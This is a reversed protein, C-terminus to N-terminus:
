KRQLWKSWNTTVIKKLKNHNKRNQWSGAQHELSFNKKNKAMVLCCIFLPGKMKHEFGVRFLHDRQTSEAVRHKSMGFRKIVECSHAGGRSSVQLCTNCYHCVLGHLLLWRQVAGRKQEAPLVALHLLLSSVPPGPGSLRAGCRRNVPHVSPCPFHNISIDHWYWECTLLM